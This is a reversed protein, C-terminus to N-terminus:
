YNAFVIFFTVTRLYRPRGGIGQKVAAATVAAPKATFLAASVGGSRGEHRRSSLFVVQGGGGGEDEGSGGGRTERQSRDGSGLGGGAWREVLAAVLPRWLAGRGAPHTTAKGKGGRRLGRDRCNYYPSPGGQGEGHGENPCPSLCRWRVRARMPRDSAERGM